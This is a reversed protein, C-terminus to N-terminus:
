SFGLDKFMVKTRHIMFKLGQYYNRKNADFFKLQGYVSNLFEVQQNLFFLLYTITMQDNSNGENAFVEQYLFPDVKLYM